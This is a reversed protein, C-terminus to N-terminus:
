TRISSKKILSNKTNLLYLFFGIALHTEAVEQWRWVYIQSIDGFLYEFYIFLYNYLFYFALIPLFYFFLKKEPFFLKVKEFLSISIKKVIMGGFASYFGVIMFLQHLIKQIPELNHITLEDQTNIEMIADPTQIDLVRQGWSIEEFATFLFVTALIGFLIAPVIEKKKKLILSVQIALFSCVFFLIAQLYEFPGDERIIRRLLDYNILYVGICFILLFVGAIYLHRDQRKKFKQHIFLMFGSLIFINIIKKYSHALTLQLLEPQNHHVIVVISLLLSLPLLFYHNFKVIFQPYKVKKELYLLLNCFVFITLMIESNFFLQEASFNAALFADASLFILTLFYFLSLIINVSMM